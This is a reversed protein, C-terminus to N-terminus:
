AIEKVRACAKAQTRLRAHRETPAESQIDNDNLCAYAFYGTITREICQWYWGDPLEAAADLTPPIPHECTSFYCRRVMDSDPIDQYWKFSVAVVPNEKTPAPPTTKKWGKCEAIFDRLQDETATDIQAPTM